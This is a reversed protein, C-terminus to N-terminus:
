APGIDEVLLWIPVDASATLTASGGTSIFRGKLTTSGSLGTHIVQVVHNTSAGAAISQNGQGLRTAGNYIFGALTSAVACDAVPVRLTSRYRRGAVPTFTVSVGSIDAETAFGAQTSTQAAYGVTGWATYWPRAIVRADTINANTISTASAAVAVVALKLCNNPLSPEAPSGAPTGTIVELSFANSAGSYFSDKVRAVVLDYRANTPDSASITLNKTADNWVGYKGQAGSDDGAVVAQGAAVDVSMNAGAGRQSVALASADTIGEAKWIMNLLARDQEATHDTRAQLWLAPNRETM